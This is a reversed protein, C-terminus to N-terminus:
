QQKVLYYINGTDVRALSLSRRQNIFPKNHYQNQSIPPAPLIQHETNRNNYFYVEEKHQTQMPEQNRTLYNDLDINKKQIDMKNKNFSLKMEVDPTM